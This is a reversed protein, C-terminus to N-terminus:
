NLKFTSSYDNVLVRTFNNGNNVKDIYGNDILWKLGSSVTSTSFGCEAKIKSYSTAVEGELFKNDVQKHNANMALYLYLKIISCNASWINKNTIERPLVIHGKTYM